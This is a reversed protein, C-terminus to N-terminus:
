WNYQSMRLVEVVVRDSSPLMKPTQRGITDVLGVILVPLCHLMKMGLRVQQVLAWYGPAVSDAEVSSAALPWTTSMRGMEAVRLTGMKIM